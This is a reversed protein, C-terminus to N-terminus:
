RGSLLSVLQSTMGFIPSLVDIGLRPLLFFLLLFPLFGLRLLDDLRYSLEVPLLGRLIWFGDLPPIPLLNFCMLLINWFTGMYLLLQANQWILQPVADQWYAALPSVYLLRYPIAFLIAMILNSAPGALAVLAHSARPNGRLLNPNIPTTAWGFGFIIVLALGLASLHPIPNLTIRGQNRPTPDGLYDAVLAHGLEHYAFAFFVVIVFAVFAAPEVTGALLQLLM